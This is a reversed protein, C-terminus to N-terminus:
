LKCNWDSDLIASSCCCKISLSLLLSAYLLHSICVVPSMSPVKEVCANTVGSVASMASISRVATRAAQPAPKKTASGTLSTSSIAAMLVCPVGSTSDECQCNVSIAVRSYHTTWLGYPYRIVLAYWISCRTTPNNCNTCLYPNVPEGDASLMTECPKSCNACNFYV